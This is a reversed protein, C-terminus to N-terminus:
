SPHGLFRDERQIRIGAVCSGSGGRGAARELVDHATKRAIAGDVQHPDPGFDHRHQADVASQNGPGRREVVRQGGLRHRRDRGSVALIAHQRLDVLVAESEGHIRQVPGEEVPARLAHPALGVQHLHSQDVAV